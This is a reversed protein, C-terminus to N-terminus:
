KTLEVSFVYGKLRVHESLVELHNPPWILLFRQEIIENTTAEINKRHTESILGLTYARFSQAQNPRSWLSDFNGFFTDCLADSENVIFGM